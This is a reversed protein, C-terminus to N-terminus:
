KKKMPPKQSEKFAFHGLMIGLVAMFAVVFIIIWSWERAFLVIFLAILVTWLGTISAIKMYLESPRKEKEM